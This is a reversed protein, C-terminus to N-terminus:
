MTMADKNAKPAAVHDSAEWATEILSRVEEPDCCFEQVPCETYRPFACIGYKVCYVKLLPSVWPHILLVEKVMNKFVKQYEGEARCCLRLESMDALTRLNAKVFIETHVATPLIGRADQTDVGEDLMEGYLRFCKDAAEQYKPNDTSVLYDFKRADVVRMAQQQFSATRTRVLQHTFARSVNKIQFTYDVFEFSSQITDMMYRWHELKEHESLCKIDGFTTGPKLRGSKTFVLLELADPTHSVISVKPEIKDM